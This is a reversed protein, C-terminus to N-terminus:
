LPSALYDDSVKVGLARLVTCVCKPLFSVGDMDDLQGSVIRLGGTSYYGSVNTADEKTAEWGHPNATAGDKAYLDVLLKGGKPNIVEFTHTHNGDTGGQHRVSSVQWGSVNATTTLTYPKINM